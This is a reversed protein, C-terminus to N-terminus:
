GDPGGEQSENEEEDARRGGIAKGRDLKRLEEMLKRASEKGRDSLKEYTEIVGAADPDTVYTIAGGEQSEDELWARIAESREVELGDALKRVMDRTAGVEGKEIKLITPHTVNSKTALGRVSLGRLERMRTLWQGFTETPMHQTAQRYPAPNYSFVYTM